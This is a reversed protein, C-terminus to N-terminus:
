SRRGAEASRPPISGTASPDAPSSARDTPEAGASADPSGGGAPPSRRARLTTEIRGTERVVIALLERTLRHAVTHLAERGDFPVAARVRFTSYPIGTPAALEIEIREPAGPGTPPTSPPPGVPSDVATTADDPDGVKPTDPTARTPSPPPLAPTPPRPTVNKAAILSGLWASAEARTLGPDRAREPDVGWRLLATRQRDTALPEDAKPNGPDSRASANM